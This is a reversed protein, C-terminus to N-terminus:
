TANRTSEKRRSPPGRDFPLAGMAVPGTGPRRMADNARIARLVETVRSAAGPEAIGRALEIRLAEGRGALAVGSPARFLHAGPIGGVALLDIGPDDLAPDDLIPVTTAVLRQAEFVPDPATSLQTM